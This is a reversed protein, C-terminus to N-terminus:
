ILYIKFKGKNRKFMLSNNIKENEEEKDLIEINNEM